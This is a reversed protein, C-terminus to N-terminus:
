FFIQRQVRKLAYKAVTFLAQRSSLRPSQLRTSREGTPVAHFPSIPHLLVQLLLCPFPSSLGTEMAQEMGGGFGGAALSSALQGLCATGVAWGAFVERSPFLECRVQAPFDCSGLEDWIEGFNPPIGLVDFWGAAKPWHGFSKGLVDGGARHLGM